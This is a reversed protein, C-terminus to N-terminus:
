LHNCNWLSVFNSVEIPSLPLGRLDKLAKEYEGTQFYANYRIRLVEQVLNTIKLPYSHNLIESCETAIAMWDALSSASDQKQQLYTLLERFCDEAKLTFDKILHAKAIYRTASVYNKRKLAEQVHKELINTRNFGESRDRQWDLLLDQLLNIDPRKKPDEEWCWALIPKLTLPISYTTEIAPKGTRPPQKLTFIEWIIVALSYVDLL